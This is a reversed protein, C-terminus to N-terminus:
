NILQRTAPRAYNPELTGSRSSNKRCKTRMKNAHEHIHCAIPVRTSFHPKPPTYDYTFIVRLIITIVISFKRPCLRKAFFGDGGSDILFQLINSRCLSVEFCERGMRFHQHFESPTYSSVTAEAFHKIATGSGLESALEEFINTVSFSSQCCDTLHTLVKNLHEDSDAENSQLESVAQAVSAIVVRHAAMKRWSAWMAVSRQEAYQTIAWCKELWGSSLGCQGAASCFVRGLIVNIALTPVPKWRKNGVVWVVM